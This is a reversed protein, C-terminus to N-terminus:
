ADGPAVAGALLVSSQATVVDAYAEPTEMAQDDAFKHAGIATQAEEDIQGLAQQIRWQEEHGQERQDDNSQPKIARDTQQFVM